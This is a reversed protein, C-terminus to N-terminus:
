RTAEQEPVGFPLTEAPEILRSLTVVAGPGYGRACYRKRLILECVTMDNKIFGIDVLVDMVPKALNDLDCRGTHPLDASGYKAKEMYMPREFFFEARLEIPGTWPEPPKVRLAAAAILRRWVVVPEPEAITGQPEYVQAIWTGNMKMARARPRPQPQPSGSCKFTVPEM